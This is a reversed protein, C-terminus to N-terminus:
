KWDEKKMKFRGGPYGQRLFPTELSDVSRECRFILCCGYWYPRANFKGLLKLTNDRKRSGPDQWSNTRRRGPFFNICSFEAKKEIVQYLKPNKEPPLPHRVPRPPSLSLPFHFTSPPFHFTSLPLAPTCLHVPACTCHLDKRQVNFRPRQVDVKGKPRQGEIGGDAPSLAVLRDLHPFSLPFHLTSLPLSNLFRLIKLAYALLQSFTKRDHNRIRKCDRM